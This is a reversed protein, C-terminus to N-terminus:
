FNLLVSCSWCYFSQESLSSIYKCKLGDGGGDGDGGGGNDDDGARFEYHLETYRYPRCSGTAICYM